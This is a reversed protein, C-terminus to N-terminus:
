NRERERIKGMKEKFPLLRLIFYEFEAYKNIILNNLMILIM